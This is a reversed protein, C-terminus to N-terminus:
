QPKEPPEKGFEKGDFNDPKFGGPMNSPDFDEPLNNPDFNERRGNEDFGNPIMGQNLNNKMSGSVIVIADDSVENGCASDLMEDSVSPSTGLLTGGNIVIHGNSDVVDGEAGQGAFITLRGDNMNFVSVDDENVNIGDDQSVINIYGSDIQLHLESDLGEYTTSTINLIGTGKEEGTILLSECSYFAGDYKYRSKQANSGEKKYVPNLLRFVNAGTVFNETGDKIVVKAGADSVDIDNSHTEKDEWANDSEYVNYFIVGPAVDCTIDVGNFILTVKANEDTFAEDGLDIAIQGHFNGQLLYKGASNIHLVPNDYAEKENHMMEKPLDNGLKPLTSFIYDKLEDNTYYSVWEMEGNYNELKFSNESIEPYYIIDHAIYILDNESPENGTYYEDKSSPDIHWVYDYENIKEGNITATQNDLVLVNADSSIDNNEVNSEEQKSCGCLLMGILLVLLFKKM